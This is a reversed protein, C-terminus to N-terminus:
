NFNLKTKIITADNIVFPMPMMHSERSKSQFQDNTLLDYKSEYLELDLSQDKDLEFKIDVVENEETIFYSMISGSKLSFVYNDNPRSKAQIGNIIFSKFRIPIKTMLEFKDANRNSKLTLRIARSNGTVSDLGVKILPKQLNRLGTESHMKVVSNYKSPLINSEFSGAKPSEGLFQETFADTHSNFSAFYAKNQEVDILYLISNPQKRDENYDSIFAAMILATIGISGFTMAPINHHRYHQILPILYGFLLTTILTSAVLMKLGLGVPFMKVYPPFIILVPVAFLSFILLHKERYNSFILFALILLLLLVPLIFFGAGRLYFCIVANLLLWFVLPAILLDQSSIKQFFKKYTWFCFALAISVVAIIYYYGNYTFGQLIDTYQPHILMMLKWGYVAIFSTVFISLLFPIFGKLLGKLTLAKRAIGLFVLVCFLLCSFYFLPAVWSFPYYIMGILPFNFYVLDESDNLQQLNIESFYHLSPMLYSAQHQLSNRDMRLFNDQATHYDFHDGIFAFNFGNINGDERFITLDTDNPILKYISYMLSSALPFPIRAKSFAEILNKNGGNTEVLMYSPGGSGRAEFNLALGVNQAWPHHNVFAIAGLLEIEEADSFCIIIDNKPTENHAMFARLGELIVAIGSGADSAGLSAHPESDYHSLLLLSNGKERGKIRALINKTNVTARYKPDMAIQEQVQVELGMKVLESVIYKRVAKHGTSGTFHPERSIEKLHGLAKKLSFDTSSIDANTDGSFGMSAFGFYVTGILIIVSVLQAYKKLFTM